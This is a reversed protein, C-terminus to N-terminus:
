LPAALRNSGLMGTKRQAGLWNIPLYLVPTFLANILAGPLVIGLLAEAWAIQHGTGALVSMSIVGYAVSGAAVLAVAPVFSTDVARLRLIAALPVLPALALASAGLPDSTLLDRIFGTLPVVVLAEDRGRLITWCAAFILVFDPTLDLVKVYPMASVSFVALLWAALLAIVYKM